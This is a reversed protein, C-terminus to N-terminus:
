NDHAAPPRNGTTLATFLNRADADDPDALTSDRATNYARAHHNDLRQATHLEDFYYHATM